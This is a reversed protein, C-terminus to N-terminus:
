KPLGDNHSLCSRSLFFRSDISELTFDLCHNFSNEGFELTELKPCNRVKFVSYHCFSDMEIKVSQLEPCNEIRFFGSDTATYSNRMIVITKLCLFNVFMLSNTHPYCNKQVTFSHMLNNYYLLDNTDSPVTIDNSQIDLDNITEKKNIVEGMRSYTTGEGFQRSFCITGQYHIQQPTLDEFYYTGYCVEWNWFRFGTYVVVNNASYYSGWGCPLTGLTDGEWREGKDSLDIIETTLNSLSLSTWVDKTKVSVLLLKHSKISAVIYASFQKRQFYNVAIFPDYVLLERTEEDKNAYDAYQHFGSVDLLGSDLALKMSPASFKWPYLGLLNRYAQSM